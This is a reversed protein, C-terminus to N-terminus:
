SVTLTSFSHSCEGPSLPTWPKPDHELVLMHKRLVLQTVMLLSQLQCWWKQM